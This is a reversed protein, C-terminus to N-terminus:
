DFAAGLAKKLLSVTGRIAAEQVQFRSPKGPIRDLYSQLNNKMLGTASVVVPIVEINKLSWTDRLDNKLHQYKTVKEREARNLGYDNTM